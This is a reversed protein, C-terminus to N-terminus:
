RHAAPPAQPTAGPNAPSDSRSSFKFVLYIILRVTAGCTSILFGDRVMIEGIGMNVAYRIQLELTPDQYPIGAKVVCYYIGIFLVIIGAFIVSNAAQRLYAKGKAQKM